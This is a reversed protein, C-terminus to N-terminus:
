LTHMYIDITSYLRLHRIHLPHTHTHAYLLTSGRATRRGVRWHCVAGCRVAVLPVPSNIAPLVNTRLTNLHAPLYESAVSVGGGQRQMQEEAVCRDRGEGGFCVLAGLISFLRVHQHVWINGVVVAVLALELAPRCLRGLKGNGTKQRGWGGVM